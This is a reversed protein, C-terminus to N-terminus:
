EGTTASWSLCRRLVAVILSPSLDVFYRLPM